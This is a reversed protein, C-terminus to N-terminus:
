CNISVFLNNQMWCIMRIPYNRSAGTSEVADRVDVRHVQNLQQLVPLSLIKATFWDSRDLAMSQIVAM